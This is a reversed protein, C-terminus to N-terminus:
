KKAEDSLVYKSSMAMSPNLPELLLGDATGLPDMKEVSFKGKKEKVILDEQTQGMRRHFSYIANFATKFLQIDGEFIPSIKKWNFSGCIFWCYKLYDGSM